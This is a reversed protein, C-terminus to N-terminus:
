SANARSQINEAFVSCIAVLILACSAAGADIHGRSREGARAARGIRAVMDETADRSRKAAEAAAGLAVAFSEDAALAEDFAAVAPVLVDVLTKDGVEAGGLEIVADAGDALMARACTADIWERGAGADALAIFFVGYLPGMAGGIDDLLTEGVQRMAESVATGAAVRGAALEMGTRMNVGHDGDGGSAGDLESLWAAAGGVDVALRAVIDGGVSAPILEASM